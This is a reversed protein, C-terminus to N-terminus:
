CNFSDDIFIHFGCPLIASKSRRHYRHRYDLENKMLPQRTEMFPHVSHFVSPKGWEGLTDVAHVALTEVRRSARRLIYTFM